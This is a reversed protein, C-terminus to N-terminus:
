EAVGAPQSQYSLHRRNEETVPSFAEIHRAEDMVQTAAYFKGSMDPLEQVLRSACILAGQEGHQFNSLRWAHMHRRLEVRQEHPMKNWLDSGIIPVEADPMQMPNEPDLEQTWDIRELADWQRKKGKDYLNLLRESEPEYDWNFYANQRGELRWGTDDTPLDFTFKGM